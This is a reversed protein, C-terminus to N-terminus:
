RREHVHGGHLTDLHDPTRSGHEVARIGDAAHHVDDGLRRLRVGQMPEEPVTVPRLGRLVLARHPKEAPEPLPVDVHAPRVAVRAPVVGGGACEPVDGERVPCLHLMGAHLVLAEVNAESVADCRRVADEPLELSVLRIVGPKAEHVRVFNV